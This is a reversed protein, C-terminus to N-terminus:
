PCDIHHHKEGKAPVYTLSGKEGRLKEPDFLTLIRGDAAYSVALKMNGQEKRRSSEIARPKFTTSRQIPDTTRLPSILRTPEAITSPLPDLWALWGRTQRSPSRSLCRTAKGDGMTGPGFGPRLRATISSSTQVVVVLSHCLM